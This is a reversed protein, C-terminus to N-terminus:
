EGKIFIGKKGLSENEKNKMSFFGLDGENGVNWWRDEKFKDYDNVM